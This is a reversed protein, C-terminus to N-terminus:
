LALILVFGMAVCMLVHSADELWPTTLFAELTGVPSADSGALSASSSSEGSQAMAYARVRAGHHSAGKVPAAVTFIASGFLLVALVFGAGPDLRAGSRMSITTMPFWYMLLMALSKAAHIAEHPIHPGVQRVSEISRVAFRVVLTAFILEWMVNPGFSWASVFMGAMAVGMVAHAVDVDRGSGKRTFFSAVLSGLCYAAVALMLLAFFYYLWSPTAM